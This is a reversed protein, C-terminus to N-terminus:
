SQSSQQMAEEIVEKWYKRNGVVFRQEQGSSLKIFLGNPILGLTNFYGIEAIENLPLDYEYNEFNFGHSRFYLKDLSLYLQGGSAIGSRFQNALGSHIVDIDPNNLARNKKVKSSTVFFYIAVGFAIGSAPGYDLAAQAGYMIGMYGGFAVAFFIAAYISNRVEM